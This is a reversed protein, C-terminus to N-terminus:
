VRLLNVNTSYAKYDGSEGTNSVDIDVYLGGCTEIGDDNPNLQYAEVRLRLKTYADPILTFTNYAPDNGLDLMEDGDIQGHIASVRLVMQADDDLEANADAADFGIFVNSPQKAVPKEPIAVILKREVRLDETEAEEPANADYEALEDAATRGQDTLRYVQDGVMQVYGKTVLRRIAKSFGRDSLGLEDCLTDIDAVPEELKGLYRIIDLAGPLPELTKLRFPLETM